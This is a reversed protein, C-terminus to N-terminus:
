VVQDDEPRRGHGHLPQKRGLTVGAQRLHRVIQRGLDLKDDLTLKRRGLYLPLKRLAM